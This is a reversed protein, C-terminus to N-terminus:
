NAVYEKILRINELPSEFPMAGTGMVCNPRGGVIELGAEAIARCLVAQNEALRLLMKATDEPRTIADECLNSIM